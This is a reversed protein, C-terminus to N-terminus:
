VPMKGTHRLQNLRRRLLVENATVSTPQTDKSVSQEQSTEKQLQVKEERPLGDEEPMQRHSTNMVPVPVSPRQLIRSPTEYQPIEVLSEEDEETLDEQHDVQDTTAEYALNLGESYRQSGM